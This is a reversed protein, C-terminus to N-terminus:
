AIVSTAGPMAARNLGPWNTVTATPPASVDISSLRANEMWSTRGSWPPVTSNTNATCPRPVWHSASRRALSTSSTM